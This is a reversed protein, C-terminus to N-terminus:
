LFLEVITLNREKSGKRLSFMTRIKFYLDLSGRNCGYFSAYVSNLNLHLIHNQTIKFVHLSFQSDYIFHGRIVDQSHAMAKENLLYIMPKMSKRLGTEWFNMYFLDIHIEELSNTFDLFNTIIKYDNRLEIWKPYIPSFRTWVLILM